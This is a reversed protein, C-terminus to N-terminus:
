EYNVLKKNDMKDTTVLKFCRCQSAVLKVLKRRTGGGCLTRQQSTVDGKPAASSGRGGHQVRPQAGLRPLALQQACLHQPGQYRPATRSFTVVIPNIDHSEM